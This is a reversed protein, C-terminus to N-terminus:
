EATGSADIPQQARARRIAWRIDMNRGLWASLVMLLQLVDNVDASATVPFHRYLLSSTPEAADTCEEDTMLWLGADFEAQDKSLLRHAHRTATSLAVKVTKRLAPRSTVSAPRSTRTSEPDDGSFGEEPQDSSPDSSPPELLAVPPPPPTQPRPLRARLPSPPDEPPPPNQSPSPSTM